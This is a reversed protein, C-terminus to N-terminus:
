LIFVTIILSEADPLVKMEVYRHKAFLEHINIVVPVLYLKRLNRSKEVLILLSIVAAGKLHNHGVPAYNKMWSALDYGREFSKVTTTTQTWQTNFWLTKQNLDVSAMSILKYYFLRKMEQKQQGM